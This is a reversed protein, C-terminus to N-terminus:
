METNFGGSHTSIDYLLVILLFVHGLCSCKGTELIKYRKKQFIFKELRLKELLFIQMLSHLLLILRIM